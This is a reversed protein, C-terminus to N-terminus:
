MKGVPSKKNQRQPVNTVKENNFEDVFYLPRDKTENFIRGLYEGIIGLSILQIGGLFLIVTMLSPYGAVNEGFLLTKAIIWIMYRYKDIYIDCKALKTKKFIDNMALEFM